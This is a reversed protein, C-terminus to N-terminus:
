GIRKVSPQSFSTAGREKLKWEAGSPSSAWGCFWTSLAGRDQAPAVSPAGLRSGGAKPPEGVGFDLLAISNVPPQQSAPALYRQRDAVPNAISCSTYKGGSVFGEIEALILLFM